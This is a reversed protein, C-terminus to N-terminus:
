LESLDIRGHCNRAHLADPGSAYLEISFPKVLLVTGGNLLVAGGAREQLYGSGAIWRPRLAPPIALASLVGNGLPDDLAARSRAFRVLAESVALCYGRRLLLLTRFSGGADEHTIAEVM